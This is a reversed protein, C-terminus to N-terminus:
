RASKRQEVFVLRVYIVKTAKELGGVMRKDMASPRLVGLRFQIPTTMAVGVVM